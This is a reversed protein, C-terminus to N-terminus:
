EEEMFILEYMGEVQKRLEDLDTASIGYDFGQFEDLATESLHKRQESTLANEHGPREVRIAYHDFGNQEWIDIENPFRADDVILYDLQDKALTALDLVAKVWFDPDQARVVDTGWWQLLQRGEEDKSGNWDFLLKATHKVYAGYPVVAARKGEKQALDKFIKSSVTKGAEAKGSFLVVIM